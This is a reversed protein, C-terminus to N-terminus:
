LRTEIEEWFDAGEAVEPLSSYSYKHPTMESDELLDEEKM